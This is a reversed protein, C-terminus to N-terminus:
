NAFCSIYLRILVCYATFPQETYIYRLIDSVFKLGLLSIRCLNIVYFFIRWIVVFFAFSIDKAWAAKREFKM